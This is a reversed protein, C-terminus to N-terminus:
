YKDDIWEIRYADTIEGEFYVGDKSFSIHRGETNVKFDYKTIIGDMEKAVYDGVTDPMGKKEEVYKEEYYKAALDNLLLFEGNKLEWKFMCAEYSFYRMYIIIKNKLKSIRYKIQYCEETNIDGILGKIDDITTYEKGEFIIKYSSYKNEDM